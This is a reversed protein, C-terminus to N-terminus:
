RKPQATVKEILPVSTSASRSPDGSYVVTIVRNGATPYSTSCTARGDNLPESGCNTIPAGGDEFEVTGSIPPLGGISASVSASYTVSQNTAVEATSASVLTTSVSQEVQLTFASPASATYPSSSVADVALSYTSGPAASLGAIAIAVSEGARLSTDASRSSGPASKSAAGARPPVLSASLQVSPEDVNGDDKVVVELGLSRTPPVLIATGSGPSATPRTVVNVVAISPAAALPRSAVVASVFGGIASPSWQSPRILWVSGALRASGPSSRFGSRCSAWAADSSQLEGAVSELEAVTTTVSGASSGTGTRGGLLQELARQVSQAARTRQTVSSTCQASAEGTPQPPTLRAFRRDVSAANSALSDLSSFFDIRDLRPGTRLLTELEGALANSEQALPNALAVYGLDVTRRYPGSAPAIQSVAGVLLVVIM